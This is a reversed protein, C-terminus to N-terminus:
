KKKGFLYHNLGKIPHGNAALLLSEIVNHPVNGMQGARLPSTMAGDLFMKKEQPNSANKELNEIVKAKAKRGIWTGQMDNLTSNFTYPRKSWDKQPPLPHGLLKEFEAVPVDLGKGDVFFYDPFDKRQDV